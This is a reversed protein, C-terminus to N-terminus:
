RVVVRVRGLNLIRGHPTSTDGQRQATVRVAPFYTGPTDFAHRVISRYRDIAGDAGTDVVPYDGAGEFDWEVKVLAGAGVPVEALAEFAVEEGVLVDARAGNNATAHVVPQVGRREAASTPVHVQGDRYSCVTSAPPAIGQEVWAAVDRLAQQLV